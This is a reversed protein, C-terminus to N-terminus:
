CRERKLESAKEGIVKTDKAKHHKIVADVEDWCKEDLTGKEQWQLKGSTRKHWKTMCCQIQRKHDPHQKIVLEMPTSMESGEKGM